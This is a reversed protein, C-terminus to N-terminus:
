ARQLAPKRMGIFRDGLEAEMAEALKSSATAHGLTILRGAADIAWVRKFVESIGAQRIDDWALQIDSGPWRRAALIDNSWRIQSRNLYLLAGILAYGLALFALEVAFGANSSVGASGTVAKFLVPNLLLVGLLLPAPIAEVFECEPHRRGREARHRWYLGAYLAFVLIMVAVYSASEVM